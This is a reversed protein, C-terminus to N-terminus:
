EIHVILRSKLKKSAAFVNLVASKATSKQPLEGALHSWANIVRTRISSCDFQLGTRRGRMGDAETGEAEAAGDGEGGGETRAEGGRM